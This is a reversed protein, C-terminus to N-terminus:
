FRQMRITAPVGCFHLTTESALGFWAGTADCQDAAVADWHGLDDHALSWRTAGCPLAGSPPVATPTNTVVLSWRAARCPLAGGYLRLM